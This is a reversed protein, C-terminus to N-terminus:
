VLLIEKMNDLYCDNSQYYPLIVIVGRFVQPSHNIARRLSMLYQWPARHV